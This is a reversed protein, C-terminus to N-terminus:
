AIRALRKGHGPRATATRPKLLAPTDTAPEAARGGPIVTLGAPRAEPAAARAVRAAGDLAELLALLRPLEALCAECTALHAEFEATEAEDLEGDVYAHLQDCRDTM